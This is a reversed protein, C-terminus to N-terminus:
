SSLLHRSVEPNVYGTNPIAYTNDGLRTVAVGFKEMLALTMDIYPQSVVTGVLKLTM